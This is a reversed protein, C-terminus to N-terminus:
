RGNKGFITDYLRYGRRRVSTFTKELPGDDGIAYEADRVIAQLVPVPILCEGPHILDLPIGEPQRRVYDHYLARPIRFRVHHAAVRTDTTTM